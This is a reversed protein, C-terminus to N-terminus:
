LGTNPYECTIDLSWSSIKKPGRSTILVALRLGTRAGREIDRLAPRQVGGVCFATDRMFIQSGDTVSKLFISLVNMTIRVM